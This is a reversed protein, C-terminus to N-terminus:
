SLTAAVARLTGAPDQDITEHHSVIVRRLGPTDALRLLDRQLAARDKLVMFRFLRSVRPGGTSQALHRLVFGSAGSVHPMNFLVDNLVLTVGDAGRVELVGEQAAIGDLERLSVAGDPPLDAYTGSVTVVEAVAKRAGSPCLLQAQPYRDQFVKSDLRHYGNPVVLYRVPGFADIEAMAADDLAIPNHILLAGDKRRAVVMVRKLPMGPLDGEIRWLAENLKEIPRHPLVKWTQNAKPMYWLIFGGAAAKM